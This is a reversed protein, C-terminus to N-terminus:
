QIEITCKSIRLTTVSDVDVDLCHRVAAEESVFVGVLEWGDGTEVEVPKAIEDDIVIWADFKM